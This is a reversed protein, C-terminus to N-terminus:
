MLASSTDGYFSQIDRGHNALASRYSQEQDHQRRREQNYFALLQWTGVIKVDKAYGSDYKRAVMLCWEQHMARWTAMTPKAPRGDVCKPVHKDFLFWFAAVEDPTQVGGSSLVHPLDQTQGAATDRLYAPRPSHLRKQGHQHGVQNGQGEGPAGSGALSADPSPSALSGLGPM